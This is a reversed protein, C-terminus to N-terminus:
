RPAHLRNKNRNRNKAQSPRQHQSSLCCHMVAARRMRVLSRRPHCWISPLVACAFNRRRLNRRHVVSSMASTAAVIAMQRSVRRTLHLEQVLRPNAHRLRPPRRLHGRRTRCFHPPHGGLSSPRRRTWEAKVGVVGQGPLPYPERAWAQPGHTNTGPAGAAIHRLLSCARSARAWHPLATSAGFPPHEHPLPLLPPHWRTLHLSRALTTSPRARPM